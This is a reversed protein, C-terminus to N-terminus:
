GELFPITFFFTSGQGLESEVWIRGDHREVIKKCIALGIGTGSYERRTHLRQFIIFIREAYQPAIGIGNDRVSFIWDHQQQVIGLHIQPPAEGHYKIANGILNQLLQTLQRTDAKLTPLPDHTLTAHTEAIAVQLNNLVQQWVEALNTESVTIPHRGVRSYTLLDQILQQMRTAGDVVYHMYKEAKEDLEGEMRRALLQTYSTIARLPEQLDHSAVYAFQELEQNSRLLQEALREREQIEHQLEENADELALTRLAVLAELEDRSRRLVEEAQKRQTINQTMALGAYIEGRDDRVPVIHITYIRDSLHFERVVQKGNLARRYLPEMFSALDDSLVEWLFRGEFQERSMGLEGLEQGDTFLYRLNQDFLHVAGNPFNHILTRYLAESDRLASESRQRQLAHVFIEGVMRLLSVLEQTWTKPEWVSALGIYGMLRNGFFLPVCLLSQTGVNAIAVRENKAELPLADLTPMEITRNNQLQELWWPFPASPIIRWELSIPSVTPAFWEYALHGFTAEEDMLVIYSREFGAFQAIAGLAENIGEDLNRDTLRIFRSSIQSLLQEYQVRRHLAQEARVRDTIDVSASLLCPQGNLEIQDSSLLMIRETGERSRSHMVMNRVSAQGQMRQIFKEREQSHTWLELEVATKGIAEEPSYGTSAVWGANVALHRSDPFTTISLPIPSSHFAIEFRRQSALLTAEATKRDTIDMVTGTMKLPNHHQDWLVSGRAAVWRVAGDARVIRYEIDYGAEGALAAQIECGTRDRDEPHTMANLDALYGSFSGVPLGFIQETQASWTIRDTQMDWDWIGMQAAELAITLRMQSLKLAEEAQKRDTIDIMVGAMKVPQGAEDPILDGRSFIWRMQGDRRLIRYELEFLDEGAVTRAIAAKIAPVDDPHMYQIAAAFTGAFQNEELGFIQKTRTSWVIKETTLYFEWTGMQAADLVMKLQREQHRLAEEAQIQATVDQVLSLVSILRGSEDVMSSNYWECYIVTGYKTCNRNSCFLQPSSGDLLKEMHLNVYELDGEYVLPFDFIYHGLVEETTWGFIKEAQDSWLYIRFDRDWGIVGLPSNEMHFTLQQYAEHLQQTRETVLQELEDHSRRLVAEARKRDGINRVIVLVEDEGCVAIRAEEYLQESDIELEYEYVQVKGTRLAEQIYHMRQAAAEAPMDDFLSQGTMDEAPHFLKFNNRAIFNLYVGDARIRMMLDPIASILARNTAESQRLASETVKRHTIDQIMGLAYLTNGSEDNILSATLSVWVVQGDKRLYRKEYNATDIEGSLIRQRNHAILQFEMELDDPHTLAFFTLTLLEAESYGLLQCFAPNVQFMQGTNADALVIGLPSAEFLKRFRAESQQLSTAAEKDATIDEFIYLRGYYRDFVDRVQTSFRRITRGNVFPIEDDVLARNGESQLPKCSEAFAPVDALMPLCHPILANNTYQGEVMADELHEIGWIECFRHNFYLIEDTRNDVVLFALPSADTMSRLLAEKWELEFEARKRDSVDLMVGDWVISGDPQRTPRSIGQVWKLQGSPTIIRWEQQWPLLSQASEESTEILRAADDPHVLRHLQLFDEEVLAPDIEFIDWCKYGVLLFQYQKDPYRCLEYIMGPMNSMVRRFRAEVQQLRESQALSEAAIAQQVQTLRISGIFYGQEDVVPLCTQGLAQFRDRLCTLTELDTLRLTLAPATMVAAIAGETLSRGQSALRLMEGCTFQGMLRQDQLVWLGVWTAGTTELHHLQAVAELISQNAAITAPTRDLLEELFSLAM